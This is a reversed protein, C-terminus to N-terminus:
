DVEEKPEAIARQIIEWLRGIHQDLTFNGAVRDAGKEGLNRALDPNLALELMHAAMKDIDGEDVLFGTEGEIIVDPIGAHRTSVVPLGSASAELIAVPTGEKNGDEPTFSHQVFARVKQMSQAVYEHSRAGKFLVSNAIKLSKALIKCALELPGDGIMILKAEPVEILVKEFALLTLFPAKTEAFRGVALFHPPNQSPDTKKFFDPKPGYPNYHLKKEPAGLNKLQTIMHRSVGIIASAQTFMKPYDKNHEKLKYDAYACYGHFHVIHPIKLRTCIDMMEVGSTGYESLVAQIKHDELYKEVCFQQWELSGVEPEEGLLEDQYKAFLREWWGPKKEKQKEVTEKAAIQIVGWERLDLEKGAWGICVQGPLYGGTMYHVEAPLLKVHNHIFTESYKQKNISVIAIKPIQSM